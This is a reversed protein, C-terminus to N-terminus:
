EDAQVSPRCINWQEKQILFIAFNKKENISAMQIKTFIKNKKILESYRLFFPRYYENILRNEEVLLEHEKKFSHNHSNFSRNFLIINLKTNYNDCIQDISCSDFQDLDTYCYNKELKTTTLFLFMWYYTCVLFVISYLMYEQLILKLKPKSLKSLINDINDVIYRKEKFQEKEKNKKNKM